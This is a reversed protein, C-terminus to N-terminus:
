SQGTLSVRAACFCELLSHRDRLLFQLLTELPPGTKWCCNEKGSLAWVKAPIANRAVPFDPFLKAAADFNAPCGKLLSNRVAVAKELKQVESFGEWFPRMRAWTDM